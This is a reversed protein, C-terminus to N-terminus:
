TGADRVLHPREAGVDDERVRVVQVEPRALVEDLLEAPQVRERTPTARDQGVRTAELDERQAVRDGREVVVADRKAGDVVSGLRAERGLADGLDLAPQAGVDRHAEVDAEGGGCRRRLELAGNADRGVPSAALGVSGARVALKAEPDCLARGIRLQSSARGLLDDREREVAVREAAEGDALRLLLHEVTDLPRCRQEGLRLGRYKMPMPSGCPMRSTTARPTSMNSQTRGVRVARVPDASVQSPRSFRRLAEYRM